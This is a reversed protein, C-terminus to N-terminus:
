GSDNVSAATIKGTKSDWVFADSVGNGDNAILNTSDSEFAVYRGDASITAGFAEGDPTQGNLGHSVLKTVGTTRNWWFVDDGSGGAGGPQTQGSEYAVFQGTASVSPLASDGDSETSGHQTVRVTTPNSAQAAQGTILALTAALALTTPIRRRLM